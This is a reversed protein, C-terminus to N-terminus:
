KPPPYNKLLEVLKRTSNEGWWNWLAEMQDSNRAFYATSASLWLTSTRM